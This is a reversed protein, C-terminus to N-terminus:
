EYIGFLCRSCRFSVRQGLSFYTEAQRIANHRWELRSFYIQRPTTRVSEAKRSEVKGGLLLISRPGDISLPNAAPPL